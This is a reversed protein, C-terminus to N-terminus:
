QGEGMPVFDADDSIVLKDLEAGIERYAVNLTHQGASLEFEVNAEMNMSDHVENWAWGTTMAINNWQYWTGGDARVWFSNNEDGAIRVRGWVHYTGAAGVNFIYSAIGDPSANPDASTALMTSAPVSIFEGGSADADTGSVMPDTITGAAEAEIWLTTGGASMNADMGADEGSMMQGGDTGADSGGSDGCQPDAIWKRMCEIEDDDLYLGFPMRVGCAPPDTVKAYLLSQEPNASDILTEGACDATTAMKGTLETIFDDASLDLGGAPTGGTHCGTTACRTAIINCAEACGQEGGGGGAGASSGGSGAGSSGGRGAQSGIPGGDGVLSADGALLSQFDSKEEDSLSGPQV